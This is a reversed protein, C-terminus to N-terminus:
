AERSGGPRGATIEPYFRTEGPTPFQAGPELALPTAAVTIELSPLQELEVAPGHNKQVRWQLNEKLYPVIVRPEFSGLSSADRAIARDLHVYGEVILESQRRCNACHTAATNVFVHHGGVFAPSSRWAAVDTPIDAPKGLFFLVSFSAGLEYKKVRVRAVWNYVGGSSVDPQVPNVSLPLPPLQRESGDDASKAHGNGGSAVSQSGFNAQADTPAVDIPAKSSAAFVTGGYLQNIKNAIATQVSDTNGMDLGNFEPYTYGFKSTSTTASSAWYDDQRAWFPTLDTNTDVTANDPITWSGGDEASGPTVWKDPNLARWLSLMRDVNAHHLFFIPDFGAVSPDSMQGAGGVDVHIGDHIAELSNASAGESATHNSFEPWTHLRTLMYYTKQTIQEQESQMTSKLQQVNSKANPGQQPTPHRLTMKWEAYPEPFSPDIPHFTYGLLPNNVAKKQGDPGIINVQKLSIVEAPPVASSAWDWYPARLNQAAKMFRDRVGNAETYTKAIEIAHTQLVQEYLAVYPRHWTPFTVMGHTCYGRWQSPDDPNSGDDGGAGDWSVYPLGHIGGIQFHSLLQSQNDAYMREIAQVYLSFQDEIEVLDNIELRNPADAGQTTGGRPGTVIFHSM